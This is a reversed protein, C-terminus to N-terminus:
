LSKEDRSFDGFNLDLETQLEIMKQNSIMRDVVDNMLIRTSSMYTSINNADDVMSIYKVMFEAFKISNRDQHQIRLAYSFIGKWLMWGTSKIFKNRDGFKSPNYNCLTITGKVNNNWLIKLLKTSCMTGFYETDLVCRYFKQCANMFKTKWTEVCTTRIDELYALTFIKASLDLGLSNVVIDM